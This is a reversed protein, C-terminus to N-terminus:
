SGTTTQWANGEGTVGSPVGQHPGTSCDRTAHHIPSRGRRHRDGGTIKSAQNTPPLRPLLSHTAHLHPHPHSACTHTNIHPAPTPTPTPHPYPQPRSAIAECAVARPSDRACPLEPCEPGRMGSSLPPPPTRLHTQSESSYHMTALNFCRSHALRTTNHENRENSCFGLTAYMTCRYKNRMTKSIERHLAPPSRKPISNTPM